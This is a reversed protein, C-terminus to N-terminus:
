LSVSFKLLPTIKRIKHFKESTQILNFHLVTLETGTLEILLSVTIIIVMVAITQTSVLYHPHAGVLYQPNAGRMTM